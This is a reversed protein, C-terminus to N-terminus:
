ELGIDTVTGVSNSRSQKVVDIFPQSRKSFEDYFTGTSSTLIRQVDTDAQQWDITTLNVAGQRAAQVFLARREEAHHSQYAKWGLLGALVGLVILITTTALVLYRPSKGPRRSVTENQTDGGSGDDGLDDEDAVTRGEVDDDIASPDAAATTEPEHTTTLAILKGDTPDAPGAV